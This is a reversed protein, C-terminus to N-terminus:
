MVEEPFFMQDIYNENFKPNGGLNLQRASAALTEAQARAGCDLLLMLAGALAANGLVRAQDALAAPILGIAAASTLDLHTGFGGCIYFDSIDAEETGTTELLTQIGAAIAAKALQVARIDRKLLRVDAALVLEPVEMAGAEDIDETKLFAAVADILGSGCLGVAPVQGITHCCVTGNELWVRDIAGRISGCGCSIGAGEFAPGAATSTVCLQQGKWLAIEGNTGIDCLLATGSMSTMQSSLVACTIDAGVFADMCPPLYAAKGLVATEYGFLCDAQFPARSLATPDKGTLLYLMTTNGTIVLSEVKSEPIAAAQCAKTLLTQVASLVMDQLVSLQGSLAAEIRGIVDSAISRQPNECACSGLVTGDSLRCLTLAITTTGIDVAAGFEGPMPARATYSSSVTEIQELPASDSLWVTGDGYLVAQCSLRTGAAKEAENPESVAGELRVACKGCIGRGGCPHEAAIGATHLIQQLPQPASFPIERRCGNQILTLVSM